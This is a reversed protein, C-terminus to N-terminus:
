APRPWTAVHLAVDQGHALEEVGHRERAQARQSRREAQIGLLQVRVEVAGVRVVPGQAARQLVARIRGHADVAVGGASQAVVDVGVVRQQGHRRRARGYPKARAHRRKGVPLTSRRAAPDHPGLSVHRGVLQQEKRAVREAEERSAADGREHM